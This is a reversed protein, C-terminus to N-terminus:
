TYAYPLTRPPQMKKHALYGQVPMKSNFLDPVYFSFYNSPIHKSLRHPFSLDSKQSHVQTKALTSADLVVNEPHGFFSSPRPNLKWPRAVVKLTADGGALKVQLDFPKGVPHRADAAATFVQGLQALSIASAEVPHSIAVTNGGGGLGRGLEVHIGTFAAMFQVAPSPISALTAKRAAKLFIGGQKRSNKAAQGGSKLTIVTTNFAKSGRAGKNGKAKAKVPRPPSKQVGGRPSKSGSGGQNPM